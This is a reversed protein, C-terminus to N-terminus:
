LGGNVGPSVDICLPPDAWRVIAVMPVRVEVGHVDQGQLIWEGDACYMGLPELEVHSGDRLRITVRRHAM